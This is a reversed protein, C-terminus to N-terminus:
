EVTGTLRRAQVLEGKPILALSGQLEKSCL